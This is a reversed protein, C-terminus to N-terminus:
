LGPKPPKVPKAATVGQANVKRRYLKDGCTVYLTDLNRGGFCVNSLWKNQPRPLIANVRGPQDSIQLGAATAIYLHGKTSTTMGDAGSNGADPLHLHFYRQKHRLSGDPQVQYSWVFQGRSDAVFLLGQDASLLVGNPFELGGAKGVVRKEGAKTVLWIQKNEPETVYVDGNERVCLDNGAIGDAIV